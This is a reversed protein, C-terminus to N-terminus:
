SQRKVIWEVVGAAARVAADKPSKGTSWYSRLVGLRHPASNRWQWVWRGWPLKATHERHWGIANMAEILSPLSGDFGALIAM